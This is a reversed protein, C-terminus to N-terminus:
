FGFFVVPAQPAETLLSRVVRDIYAINDAIAIERDQRTMWSAVVKEDGRSYFRHLAQISVRTWLDSGPLRDLESLMDEASQAYGHFGVLFRVDSPSVGADKILVRGHTPTETSITRM